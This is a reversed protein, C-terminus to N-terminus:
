INPALLAKLKVLARRYKSKVTNLPKGVVEGIAEFTLGESDHLMIITQDDVPLTELANKVLVENEKTEFLEHQLPEMDRLTDAFTSEGESDDFQSFNISKKKRLWDISTNRAIAFLWTKWEKTADFKGLSKWSKLFIDQTLEEAASPNGILRYVFRYLIDVYRNTLLTFAEDDGERYAEVLENDTYHEM